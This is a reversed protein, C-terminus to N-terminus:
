FRSSPLFKEQSPQTWTHFAFFWSWYLAISLQLRSFTWHWIAPKYLSGGHDIIYLSINMFM